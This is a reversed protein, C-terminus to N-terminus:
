RPAVQVPQGHPTTTYARTWAAKRDLLAQSTTLSKELALCELAKLVDEHHLSGDDGHRDGQRIVRGLAEAWETRTIRGADILAMALALAEAQWPEDFDRQSL